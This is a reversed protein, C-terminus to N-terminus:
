GSRREVLMPPFVLSSRSPKKDAPADILEVLTDVAKRSIEETPVEMSTMPTELLSGVLYGTLSMLRVDEPYRLEQERLAKMAGMGQVDVAAMLADLEPHESLLRTTSRYGYEFSNAQLSDSVLIEELGLEDMARRYGSLRERYPGLSAPGNILGIHRCGKDALYRAGEYACAEFDATVSSLGINDRRLFQVISMGGAALTQIARTNKGTAAIILGDVFGNGLRDLCERERKPDDDTNCVITAYGLEQARQEAAQVADGFMTLQLRPVVIGITHRKGKRLGQALVNPEYSLKEVAAFVRKRTEPHVHASNNLARSVTSSDVNALKAVDKLTPM